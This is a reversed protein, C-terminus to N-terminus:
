GNKLFNRVKEKLIIREVRIKKDQSLVDFGRARLVCVYVKAIGVEVWQKRVFHILVLGM